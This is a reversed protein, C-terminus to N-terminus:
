LYWVETIKGTRRDVISLKQGAFGVFCKDGSKHEIHMTISDLQRWVQYHYCFQSLKYGNPYKEIYEQWLLYLTVGKKKLEKAYYAFNDSLERYKAYEQRKKGLLELLKTDSLNKVSNYGLGSARYDIIYQSVVPRSVLLAAAIKRYSLGSEYLRLIERIKGMSIRRKVM